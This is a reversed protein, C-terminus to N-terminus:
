FLSLKVWKEGKTTPETRLDQYFIRQMELLMEECDGQYADTLGEYEWLVDNGEPVSKSIRTNDDLSSDKIKGLEASVIDQFASKILDQM